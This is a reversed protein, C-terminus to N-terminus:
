VTYLVIIYESDVSLALFTRDAGIFTLNTTTNWFGGSQNRSVLRFGTNSLETIYASFEDRKYAYARAITSSDDDKYSEIEDAGTIYGYDPVAGNEPYYYSTGSAFVGRRAQQFEAFTYNKDREVDAICDSPIALNVNQGEDFGASSIGIVRSNTDLVAGGSSGHSIPASIQIYEQGEIVRSVNSVVGETISNDLGLPSGICFIKQGNKVLSSPAIDLYPFDTGEVKIIAIDRDKDYGLVREVTYSKGSVTVIKASYADEIVHYNTVATGDAAIFFGSGSAIAQGQQNYIEIYFVCPSASESVLEASYEDTIGAYTKEAKEKLTVSLRADPKIIRNITAAVEARTINETPSFTGYEDKGSLVGARYLMIIENYYADVVAVDPLSSISPNINSLETFPLSNALVYATQTRSAPKNLLAELGDSEKIIMNEIAYEYFPEYWKEGEAVEFAEGDDSYISCIRAGFAIVEAISVLDYPLFKNEGAGQTIGYEYASIVDSYFWDSEKIDSFDGDNYTRMPAFNNMQESAYVGAVSTFCLMCALLFTIARKHIKM